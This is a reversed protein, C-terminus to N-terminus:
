LTVPLECIFLLLVQSLEYQLLTELQPKALQSADSTNFPFLM